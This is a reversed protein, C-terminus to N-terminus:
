KSPNARYWDITRKLGEEFGVLSKWGLLKEAKEVSLKRRPQGDPKTTDWTIGGKFGTLKVILEVLDKIKIEFS